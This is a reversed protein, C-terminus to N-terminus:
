FWMRYVTAYKVHRRKMASSVLFKSSRSFFIDFSQEPTCCTDWFSSVTVSVLSLSPLTDTTRYAECCSYIMLWLVFHQIQLKVMKGSVNQCWTNMGTDKREMQTISAHGGILFGSIICTLTSLFVIGDYMHVGGSPCSPSKTKMEPLNLDADPLSNSPM